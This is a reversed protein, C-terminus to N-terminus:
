RCHVAAFIASSGRRLNIIDDTVSLLVKFVFDFDVVFAIRAISPQQEGGLHGVVQVFFSLCEGINLLLSGLIITECIKTM